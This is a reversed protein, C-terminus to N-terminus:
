HAFVRYAVCGVVAVATALAALAAAFVGRRSFPYTVIGIASYLALFTAAYWVHTAGHSLRGTWHGLFVPMVSAGVVLAEFVLAPAAVALVITVYVSLSLPSRRQIAALVISTAPATLATSALGAFAALYFAGELEMGSAAHALKPVTAWGLSALALPVGLWLWRRDVRVQENTV